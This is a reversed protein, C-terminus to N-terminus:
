PVAGRDFAKMERGHVALAYIVLVDFVIVITSWVPYAPLWAFNVLAQLAALTIGVVRGWTKGTMVAVGALFVVVGMVLHFWGWFTYNVPIALNNATVVYFDTNFIGVLGMFAQFCGLIMMGIGALAVWGVWGTPQPAEM